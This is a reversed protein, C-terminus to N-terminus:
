QPTLTPPSIIGLESATSEQRCGRKWVISQNTLCESILVEYHEFQLVQNQAEQRHLEVSPVFSIRILRTEECFRVRKERYRGGRKKYEKAIWASAYASPWREFTRKAKQKISEWLDLDIVTPPPM